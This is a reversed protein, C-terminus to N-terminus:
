SIFVLVVGVVAIFFGLIKCKLNFAEDLEDTKKIKKTIIKSLYVFLAGVVLVFFGFYKM